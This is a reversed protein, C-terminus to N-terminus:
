ISQQILSIGSHTNWVQRRKLKTENKQVQSLINLLFAHKNNSTPKQLYTKFYIKEKQNKEWYNCQSSCIFWLPNLLNDMAYSKLLEDMVYNELVDSIKNAPKNSIKPFYIALKLIESDWKQAIRLDTEKM